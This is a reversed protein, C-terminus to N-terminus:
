TLLIQTHAVRRRCRPPQILQQQFTQLRQQLLVPHRRQQQCGISPQLRHRKRGQRITLLEKTVAIPQRQRWRQRHRIQTRRILLLAITQQRKPRRFEIPQRRQRKHRLLQLLHSRAAALVLIQVTLERRLHKQLLPPIRSVVLHMHRGM